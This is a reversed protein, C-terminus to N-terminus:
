VCAPEEAHPQRPEEALLPRTPDIAAFCVASIFMSTGFIVLPFEHNHFHKLYYGYLVMCLAGAAQGSMNMAGSVAGAYRKGVDLCVAWSAPLMGDMVGFAMILLIAAPLKGPTFATLVLLLGCVVLCTAGILCRGVWLGYTRSLRDSAWGGVMNGIVGAGFALSVSITAAYKDFGRADTFYSTLKLMFFIDGFVYFWYMAVILWLGPAAALSLWPIASHSAHGKKGTGIEALEVQTIGRHAAPDDKFWLTWVLAWGLGMVGFVFFPLQWWPFIAILPAIALPTLAGGLRSAGWVLGQARARESVPFWRGIVGAANPYAGAEGAGFLFRVAVLLYYNRAIGTFMTFASWWVVIRTLIKRQGVFDGLAGTPIEFIGYGLLFASLVWGWGANDIGLDKKIPTELVSICIRDMYTIVSLLVLM